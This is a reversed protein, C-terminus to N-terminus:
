APELATMAARRTQIRSELVMYLGASAFGLGALVWWLPAAGARELLAAGLVPALLGALGSMSGVLGIYRGRQEPRGLESVVTKSISYAVIEGLTWVVVALMHARLT